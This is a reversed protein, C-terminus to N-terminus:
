KEKLANELYQKLKKRGYFLRSMVSGLPIELVEAVESLSFGEVDCLLIATRQKKPLSYIGELIVRKEEKLILREEPDKESTQKYIEMREFDQESDRLDLLFSRRKKRKLANICSNVLIRFFWSSFSYKEDYSNINIYVKLFAEQVMDEADDSNRMFRLAISYAKKMYRQVIENFAAEDGRKIDRILIRDEDCPLFVM